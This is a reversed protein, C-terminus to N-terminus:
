NKVINVDLQDFPISIGEKNFEKLVQENLDFLLSFYDETKVWTRVTINISSAAHEIVRVIPEPDKFAMPHNNVINNLIEKAKEFDDDYSISYVADLRRTTEDTYNTLSSTSIQGNPIYIVKNDITLLRTHLITIRDVTGSDSGLEIYDGVKFPKSFLILFGGALNAMSSQLALGISLGAAGIIAIISSMDVNLTTLVAVALVIYLVVKLLSKVFSQITLDLKTKLMAKKSIKLILKLLIIGVVLVIIATLITPLANSAFEILDKKIKEM